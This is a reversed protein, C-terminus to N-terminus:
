HGYPASWPSTLVTANWGPWAASGTGDRHSILVRHDERRLAVWPHAPQSARSGAQLPQTPDIVADRCTERPQGALAARANQRTIPESSALAFCVVHPDAEGRVVLSALAYSAVPGLPWAGHAAAQRIRTVDEKSGLEGLAAVASAAVPTSASQTATRLAALAEKSQTAALARIIAVHRKTPLRRRPRRNLAILGAVSKRDALYGLCAIAWTADEERHSIATELLAKRLGDRAETSLNRQERALVAALASLRTRPHPAAKITQAVLANLAAQSGLSQLADRAAERVTVDSDRLAQVLQADYGAAHIQELSVAAARRVEPQADTLASAIRPAAGSWGTRGVLLIVRSRLSAPSSDLWALLPAAALAEGPPLTAELGQLIAPAQADSAGVTQELLTLWAPEAPATNEEKRERSEHSAAVINAATRIRPSDSRSLARVAEIAATSRADRLARLASLVVTENSDELADILLGEIRPDSHTSLEDLAARRVESAADRTKGILANWVHAQGFSALVHVTQVRVDIDTDDLAALLLALDSPEAVKGLASVAAVRVHPDADSLARTLPAKAEKAKLAGLSEIAAVRLTPEPDSMAGLLTKTARTLGIRAVAAIAERRINPDKDVLARELAARAIEDDYTALLRVIDRRERASAHDLASSLRVSKGPWDFGLSCLCALLALWTSPLWLAEIPRRRGFAM